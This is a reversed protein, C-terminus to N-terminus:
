FKKNFVNNRGEFTFLIINNYCYVVWPFSELIQLWM